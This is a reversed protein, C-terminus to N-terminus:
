LFHLLAFPGFFFASSSVVSSVNSLFSSFSGIGSVFSGYVLMGTSSSSVEFSSLISFLSSSDPSIASTSMDNSRSVSLGGSALCRRGRTTAGLSDVGDRLRGIGGLGRREWLGFRGVM